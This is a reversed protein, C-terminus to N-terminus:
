ADLGLASEELVQARRIRHIPQLEVDLPLDLEVDLLRLLRPPCLFLGRAHRLRDGAREVIRDLADEEDALDALYDVEFEIAAANVAFDLGGHTDVAAEVMAKVDDSKSVDAHL